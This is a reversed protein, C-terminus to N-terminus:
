DFDVRAIKTQGFDASQESIRALRLGLETPSVLRLEVCQHCVHHLRIHNRDEFLPFTAVALSSRRLCIQGIDSLSGHRDEVDVALAV